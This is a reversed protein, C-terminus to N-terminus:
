GVRYSESGTPIEVLVVDGAALQRGRRTEPAGNVQVEGEELLRRADAGSEAVGCLKLFQGLRIEGEVPVPTPAGSSSHM